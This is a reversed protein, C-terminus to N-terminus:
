SHVGFPACSRMILSTKPDDCTQHRGVDYRNAWAIRSSCYMNQCTIRSCIDVLFVFFPCIFLQLQQDQILLQGILFAKLWKRRLWSLVFPSCVSHKDKAEQPGFYTSHGEREIFVAQHLMYTIGLQWWSFNKYIYKIMDWLFYFLFLVTMCMQQDYSNHDSVIKRTPCSFFFFNGACVRM